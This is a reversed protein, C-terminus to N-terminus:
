SAPPVYVTASVTLPAPPLLVVLLVIVTFVRGTTLMVARGSPVVDVGSRGTVKVPDAVSGLVSVEGSPM